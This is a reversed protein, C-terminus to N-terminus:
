APPRAALMEVMRTAANRMTGRLISIEFAEALCEFTSDHFAFIFHRQRALFRERDHNPHVSNMREHERVWSSNEVEFVAYPSLGRAALPHGDFAEDNPLGFMHASPWRFQVIAILLGDSEPTVMTAYTGDWEPDPESVIYALLLYQEDSVVLPLPAGVDSQPVNSLEIVRDLDDIEYM